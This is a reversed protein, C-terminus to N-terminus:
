RACVQNTAYRLRWYSARYTTVWHRGGQIPVDDHLIRFTHAGLMRTMFM